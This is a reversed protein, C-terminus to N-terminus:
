INLYNEMIQNLKRAAFIPILKSHIGRIIQREANPIEEQLFKTNEIDFNDKDGGIILTPVDIKKLLSRVDVKVINYWGDRFIEPPTRKASKLGWERLSELKPDPFAGKWFGDVFWSPSKLAMQRWKEFMEENFNPSSSIPGPYFSLLVLKSIKRPYHTVYKVVIKTGYNSGVVILNKVNLADIISNLDDAFVDITYEGFTKDSNGTGRMDLTVVQCKQSLYTVQPIWFETSSRWCYFLITPAGKGYVYYTLRVGKNEVIKKRRIKRQLRNKISKDKTSGIAKLYCENAMEHEAVFGYLGGLIELTETRQRNWREDNEMAKLAQSFYQITEFLMYERRSNQGAKLLYPVAKKFNGSHYHHYALQNIVQDLDDEYIEEIREAILSHYKKRLESTIDQYLFERIKSHDFWYKEDDSHILQYKREIKNLRKLVQLSNLGTIDEILDSTFHEGVVSACDIIDREGERLIYIRRSIVDRITHPLEIESLRKTLEWKEGKLVLLKKNILFKLTELIFFPNGETEEYILKEFNYDYIGLMTNILKTCDSQTLRKLEINQSLSENSLIELTDYLPHVVGEFTTIIGTSRYAGLLLLNSNEINRAINKFLKLSSSDALHMDDIFLILSKKSSFTVIVKALNELLSESKLLFALDEATGLQGSITEFKFSNNSILNDIFPLLAMFQSDSDKMQEKIIKRRVDSNEDGSLNFIEKFIKKIPLLPVSDQSCNCKIVKINNTLANHILEDVLRTKGIGAQGNIIITSGKGERVKELSQELQKLEDQRGVFIPLSREIRTIHAALLPFSSVQEKVTNLAADFNTVIEAGTEALPQPLRKGTEIEFIRDETFISDKWLDEFTEILTDVLSKSNIFLCSENQSTSFLDTKPSIFFLVDKKDKIIMRPLTKQKSSPITARFDIESKIKPMLLKTAKLNQKSLETLMRFKIKSKKPHKTFEEFIGFQEGRSIKSIPLVISIQNETKEIMQLIKSYIKKGEVVAFKEMIPQIRAKRIREWDKLLETKTKEVQTIEKRRYKIYSDIIKQLPIAVYRTPSELTSEVFGKKKLNSLTRYVTGKNKRLQKAIQGTKLTGGKALFVYIEAENETIGFNKLTNKLTEISL